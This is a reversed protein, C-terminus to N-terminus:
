NDSSSVKNWTGDSEQVLELVDEAAMSFDGSGLNMEGKTTTAANNTWTVTNTNATLAILRVTRGPHIPMNTNISPVTVAATCDIFFVDSTEPLSLDVTTVPTLTPPAKARGSKSKMRAVVGM